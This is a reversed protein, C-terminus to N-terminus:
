TWCIPLLASVSCAATAAAILAPFGLAATLAIRAWRTADRLRNRRAHLSPQPGAAPSGRRHGGHKLAHVDRVDGREEVVGVAAEVHRGVPLM